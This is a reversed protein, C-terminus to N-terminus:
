FCSKLFFGLSSFFNSWNQPWRTWGQARQTGREATIDTIHREATCSWLHHHHLHLRPTQPDLWGYSCKQVHLPENLHNALSFHLLFCFPSAEVLWNICVFIMCIGNSTNIIFVFFVFAFSFTCLEGSPTAPFYFLCSISPLLFFFMESMSIKYRATFFTLDLSCIWWLLQQIMLVTKIQMHCSGKLVTGSDILPMAGRGYKPQM